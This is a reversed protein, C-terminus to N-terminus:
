LLRYSKRVQEEPVSFCDYCNPANLYLTPLKKQPLDREPFFGAPISSIDIPCGDFDIFEINPVKGLEEPLTRVNNGEAYLFRLKKLKGIKSPIESIMSNEIHISYLEPWEFIFEPMKRLPLWNMHIMEMKKLKALEKPFEKLFPNAEFQLEEMNECNGLNPSIYNIPCRQLWLTKLNMDGVFDPISDIKTDPLFLRYPISDNEKTFHPFKELPVKRISLYELSNPLNVNEIKKIPNESLVLRKLRKFSAINNPIDTFLCHKLNLYDLNKFEFIENPITDIDLNNIWIDVVRGLSDLEYNLSDLGDDISEFGYKDKLIALNIQEAQVEDQILNIKKRERKNSTCSLLFSLILLYIYKM